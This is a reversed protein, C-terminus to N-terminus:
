RINLLRALGHLFAKRRRRCDDHHRKIRMGREVIEEQNLQRFDAYKRLVFEFLDYRKTFRTMNELCEDIPIPQHEPYFKMRNTDIVSFLEEVSCRCTADAGMDRNFLQPDYLVNTDNLDHHLVGKQHLLVLYRAFLEALSCDWDDRDIFDEIPRADTRASAFYCFDILGCEKTEHFGYPVPTSVGRRLLEKGHSYARSAKTERFYTYVVKQVINPRKFRKIVMETGDDMQFLRITNRDNYLVTGKDDFILPIHSIFEEKTM